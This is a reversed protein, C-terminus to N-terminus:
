TVSVRWLSITGTNHNKKNKNKNKQTKIWKDTHMGSSKVEEQVLVTVEMMVFPVQAWSLVLFVVCSYNIKMDIWIFRLQGEWIACTKAASGDSANSHSYLYIHSVNLNFAPDFRPDASFTMQEMYSLRHLDSWGMYTNNCGGRKENFCAIRQVGLDSPVDFWAPSSTAGFRM